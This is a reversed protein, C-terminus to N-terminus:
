RPTQAATDPTQRSAAAGPYFTDRLNGLASAFVMSEEDLFPTVAAVVSEGLLGHIDLDRDDVDNAHQELNVISFHDNFHASADFAALQQSPPDITKLIRRAHYRGSPRFLLPEMKVLEQTGRRLAEDLIVAHEARVETFLVTGVMSAARKKYQEFRAPEASRSEHLAFNAVRALLQGFDHDFGDQTRYVENLHRPDLAAMQVKRMNHGLIAGFEDLESRHQGMATDVARVSGEILRTERLTEESSSFVM